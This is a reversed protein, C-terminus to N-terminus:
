VYMFALAYGLGFGIGVAFGLLIDILYHVGVIIRSIGVLITVSMLVAIIIVQWSVTPYSLLLLLSTAWAASTTAHGSPCSYTRFWMKYYTKQDTIPRERGLINQFLLAIVYSVMPPLIVHWWALDLIVMGVIGVVMFLWMGNGAMFHWFSLRSQGWNKINRTWRADAALVPIM